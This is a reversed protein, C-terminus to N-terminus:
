HRGIGLSATPEAVLGQDRALLEPAGAGEWGGQGKRSPSAWTCEMPLELRAQWAPAVRRSGAAQARAQAEAKGASLRLWLVAQTGPTATCVLARSAGLRPTEQRWSGRLM